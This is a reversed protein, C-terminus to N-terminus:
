CARTCFPVCPFLASSWCLRVQTTALPARFEYSFILKLLQAHPQPKFYSGCKGLASWWRALQVFSECNGLGEQLLSCLRSSIRLGCFQVCQAQM